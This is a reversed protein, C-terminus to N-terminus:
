AFYENFIAEAKASVAEGFTGSNDIIQRFCPKLQGKKSANKGKLTNKYSYGKQAEFTGPLRMVGFKERVFEGLEATSRSLSEFETEKGELQFWLHAAIVYTRAHFVPVDDASEVEPTEGLAIPSNDLEPKDESSWARGGGLDPRAVQRMADILEAHLETSFPTTELFTTVKIFLTADKVMYGFRRYIRRREWKVKDKALEQEHFDVLDTLYAAVTKPDRERFWDRKHWIYLFFNKESPFYYYIESYYLYKFASM